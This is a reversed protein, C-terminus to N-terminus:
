PDPALAESEIKQKHKDLEKDFASALKKSVGTAAAQYAAFVEEEVSGNKEFQHCVKTFLGFYKIFPLDDAILADMEAQRIRKYSKDKSIKGIISLMALEVEQDKGPTVLRQYRKRDTFFVGTKSPITTAFFLSISIIAGTYLIMGPIGGLLFALPFCFLAFLISAIPGALLIRAFKKANDPHNDPPSTAAVGGFLSLNKNFYWYVKEDERKIGLFGVVFLEFRFGQVLGTVLHGLEHVAIALFGLLIIGTILIFKQAQSLPKLDEVFNIERSLFFLGCFCLILIAWEIYKM